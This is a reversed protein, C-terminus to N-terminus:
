KFSYGISIGAWPVFGTAEHEFVDVNYLLFPTFGIRLIMGGDPREQYRYGITMAFAVGGPGEPLVLVPGCGIEFFHKKEGILYNAMALVIFSTGSVRFPLAGLRLGIRNAVMYEVNISGGIANGGLEAFLSFMGKRQAAQAAAGVWLISLMVPLIVLPHWAAGPRRPGTRFANNRM